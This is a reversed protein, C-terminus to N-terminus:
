KRSRGRDFWHIAESATILDFEAESFPLDEAPAKIYRIRDDQPALTLMEESSDVGVIWEAIEKLAVTSQGTGCAVDLAQPAPKDIGIFDKVKEIVLPHFYPRAASYRQAATRSDFYNM